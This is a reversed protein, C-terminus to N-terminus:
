VQMRMVDQYASVVKDRINTALQLELTAKQAAIMVTHIDSVQGAALQEDLNQSDVVSQNVQNLADSLYQGFSTGDTSNTSTQVPQLALNPMAGVVSQIM